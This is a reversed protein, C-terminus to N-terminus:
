GSEVPSGSRSVRGEAARLRARPTVHATVIFGTHAVMRLEPRVVQGRAVWRRELVERAEIRVFGAADLAEVTDHLQMANTVYAGLRGGPGLVGALWSIARWPDVMDLAVRDYTDTLEVEDLDGVVVTLRALPATRALNKAALRAFDERREVATVHAGVRLLWATLGGSGLGCELVHMGPGVDLAGVMALADKPYIIQAGRPQHVIQEALTPRLALVRKGSTTTVSVGPEQGVIDDVDVDGVPTRVPSGEILAAATERGRHDILLVVDGAAFSGTM